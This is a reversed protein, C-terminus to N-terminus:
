LGKVCRFGIPRTYRPSAFTDHGPAAWRYRTQLENRESMFSGGRIVMNLLGEPLVDVNKGEITTATWEWANGALDFCGTSSKGLPFSEVPLSAEQRSGGNCYGLKFANGWPYTLGDLGAAAAEWEVETPLRKGAWRAYADAQSWSVYLVPHDELTADYVARGASDQSWGRPLAADRKSLALANVYISYERNTVERRDMFFPKLNVRRADTNTWGNRDPGITYSGGPIVVMGPPAVEGRPGYREPHQVRMLDTGAEEFEKYTEIYATVEDQEGRFVENWFVFWNMGVPFADDVIRLLDDKTLSEVSDRKSLDDAVAHAVWSALREDIEAAARVPGDFAEFLSQRRFGRLVPRGQSRQADVRSRAVDLSDHMALVLQHRFTAADPGTTIEIYDDELELILEELGEYAADHADRAQELRARAAALEPNAEAVAQGTARPGVVLVALLALAAFPRMLNPVANTELM